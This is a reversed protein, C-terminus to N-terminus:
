REKGKGRILAEPHQELQDALARLSRAANTIQGLAEPLSRDQAAGEGSILQNASAATQDLQGAADRLKVVLPGIQPRVEHMMKSTQDLTDDLHAISQDIKPNEVIQSLRATLQKVNEGIATFPMSNLNDLLQSAKDGINGLDASGHSPISPYGGTALLRAGGAGRVQALEIRRSGILPPSQGLRARYGKALLSTLARDVLPRWDGNAPETVGVLHMRVPEVAITVPSILYGTAPDLHMDVAEVAGIQFGGLMVPAGVKLDGVADPFEVSYFIKPGVGEGFAHTEDEYLKYGTGATARADDRYEPPTEFTVAGLAAAPDFSAGLGSGSVSIKLPSISWFLSHPHVLQDYPAQVFAEARLVQPGNVEVEAIKGVTMGRYTVNSGARVAGLNDTQLWFATGKEDPMIPPRANLGVFRHTATGKTGAAMGITVGSVAAKISSLDTLSFTAGEIWFETSTNLVARLRGELRVTVDVSTGDKDLGVRTVHGVQLGRYIVKTDGPVAGAADKFVIVADVGPNALARLGLYGVILLAAIPV